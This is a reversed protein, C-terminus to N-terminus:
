MSIRRLGGAPVLIGKAADQERKMRFFQLM